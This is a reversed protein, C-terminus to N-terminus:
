AIVRWMEGEAEREREREKGRTVPDFGSVATVAVIIAVLVVGGAIVSQVLNKLSPTVEAQAALPSALM